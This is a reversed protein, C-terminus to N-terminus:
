LKGGKNIYEKILDNTKVPLSSDTQNHHSNLINLIANQYTKATQDWTYKNLVRTIGQKQYYDYDNYIGKIGSIISLISEPDVLAGFREGNEKFIDQPGGNKTVVCPLGSAMAEIPALGFPEYLSTLVFISQQSALSRYFCALENQNLINVFSIKGFLDYQKIIKMFEKMLEQESPKLSSFDQFANEIGRISIAINYNEQLFSDTAFAKLLAIHNKKPDLRSALILYPLSLREQAIDRTLIKKFKNVMEPDDLESHNHFVHLNAGPPAVVFNKDMSADKYLPHQYQEDREQVTSTFIIDSHYIANREADIRTSFHYKKELEDFSTTKLLKDMKQAGLSHGTFSYPLHLREKILSAAVGGDGYHGTVFDPFQNKSKFYLIINDVWDNLYPWLLEKELFTTPGCPIRVIKPNQEENYSDFQNAFKNLRQDEFQRTIIEVQHGLKALSVAIEKVYVLQGGFDPHETWFSDHRDFNGQPNLFVIYM